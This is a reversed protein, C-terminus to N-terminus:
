RALLTADSEVVIAQRLDEYDSQSPNCTSSAKFLCYSGRHHILMPNSAKEIMEFLTLLWGDTQMNAFILDGLLESM